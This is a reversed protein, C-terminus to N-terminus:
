NARPATLTLGANSLLTTILDLITSGTAGGTAAGGAAAAAGGGGSGAAAAAQPIFIGFEGNMNAVKFALENEDAEFELEGLQAGVVFTNTETCLRGVQATSIDIGDLTALLLYTLLRSFALHYHGHSPASM